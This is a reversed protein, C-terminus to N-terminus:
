RSHRPLQRTGDYNLSFDRGFNYSRDNPLSVAKDIDSGKKKWEGRRESFYWLRLHGKPFDDYLNSYLRPGLGLTRGDGSLAMSTCQMNDILIPQGMAQWTTSDTTNLKYVLAECTSQHTALVALITGDLSMAVQTGFVPSTGQITDGVQEWHSYRVDDEDYEVWDYVQVQGLRCAM